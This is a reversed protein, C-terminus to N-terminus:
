IRFLTTFINVGEILRVPTKDIILDSDRRQLVGNPMNILVALYRTSRRPVLRTGAKLGRHPPRADLFGSLDTTARGGAM